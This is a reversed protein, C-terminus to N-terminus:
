QFRTKQIHGVVDYDAAQTVEVRVIEGPQAVGDNIYTIGDVEVAQGAHRGALLDDSEPSAGEVLVELTKGVLAKNQARNIRRQLTMIERRRRRAIKAPVQDPMAAAATGEEASFEFVGLREFRAFEVFAKLAEHDEETEGPLGSILSTRLTIEPVRERLRAILERIFTANSGRRMARLLRDSIHQLPIDLYPVVKEEGALIAILEDSIARPYAYHLRIWRLGDVKVLSRLLKELGAREALDRGYATLDQAILSIEVCGESALARAEAVVDEIPRSRQAGRISPIVCFACRNDCGESVKVFATFHATSRARPMAASHIFGPEGVFDRPLDGRWLLAPVESLRGTGVFHDVEPMAEMLEAVHRQPLCGTAVLKQCNGGTRLAGMELLTDISEKQADRIFSCTNVVIVEAEEPDDTWVFGADILGGLLIESDVRNKACGLSILHIRRPSCQADRQQKAQPQKAQPQSPSPQQIQNKM